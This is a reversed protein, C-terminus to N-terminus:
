PTMETDGSENMIFESGYWDGLRVIAELYALGWWGYRRTLRWFRESLGSDIRHPEILNKRIDSPLKIVIDGFRGTVESPEPDPSIPAFPRAHGHHSAILHLVLEPNASDHLAKQIELLQMSLMEHRFDCPLGSAERLAKRQAPSTPVSTSKALPEGSVSTLEDGRRLMLQFRGDLKGVDHWHAALGLPVLLDSSLCLNALKAVAKEVSVSHTSLSVERGSASTLDDDDAFLEDETM